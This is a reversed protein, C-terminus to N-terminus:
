LVGMGELVGLDEEMDGPQDLANSPKQAKGVVMSQRYDHFNHSMIKNIFKHTSYLFFVERAFIYILLLFIVAGHTM